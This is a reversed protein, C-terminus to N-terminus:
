ILFELFKLAEKSEKGKTPVIPVALSKQHKFRKFLVPPKDVIEWGEETVHIARWNKDCMDIWFGNGNPDPAVRNYLKHRNGNRYTIGSLTTIAATLSGAVKGFMSYFRDALFAKFRKSHLPMIAIRCGSPPQLYKGSNVPSVDSVGNEKYKINYNVKNKNSKKVSNLVKL